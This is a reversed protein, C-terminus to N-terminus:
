GAVWKYNEEKDMSEVELSVSPLTMKVEQWEKLKEAEGSPKRPSQLVPSAVRSTQQLM